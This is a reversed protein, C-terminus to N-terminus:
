EATSTSSSIGIKQRLLKEFTENEPAAKSYHAKKYHSLSPKLASIHNISERGVLKIWSRLAESTNPRAFIKAISQIQAQAKVIDWDPMCVSTPPDKLALQIQQQFVRADDTRLSSFDKEYRSLVLNIIALNINKQRGLIKETKRSQEISGLAEFDITKEGSCLCCLRKGWSPRPGEESSFGQLPVFLLLIFAFNKITM